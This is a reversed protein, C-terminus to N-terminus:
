RLAELFQELNFRMLAAYSDRGALGPGGLPDVTIVRGGLEAAIAEAARSRVQADVVVSTVGAERAREIVRALHAPTPESQSAGEVLAVQELGYREAFPLWASHFAVFRRNRVRALSERIESDLRELEAVLHLRREEIAAEHAPAVEVLAQALIPVLRTYVLVPDLWVHPNANESLGLADVLSIRRAATSSFREAWRDLIGVSVFLRSTEILRAQAPTMEYHHPSAGPPLVVAVTVAPGGLARMLAGIPFITAVALPHAEGAGSASPLAGFLLLAALLALERLWRVAVGARM